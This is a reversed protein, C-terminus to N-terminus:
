FLAIQMYQRTVNHSHVDVSCTPVNCSNPVHVNRYYFVADSFLILHNLLSTLNATCLIWGGPQSCPLARTLNLASLTVRRASSRALSHLNVATTTRTLRRTTSASSSPSSVPFAFTSDCMSFSSFSAVLVNCTLLDLDVAPFRRGFFLHYISSKRLILAASFLPSNFRSSCCKLVFNQFFYM